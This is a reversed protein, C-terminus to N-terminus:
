RWRFSEIEPSLFFKSAMFSFRSVRAKVPEEASRSSRENSQYQIRISPSQGYLVMFIRIEVISYKVYINIHYIAKQMPNTSPIDDIWRYMQM